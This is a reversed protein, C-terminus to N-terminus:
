GQNNKILSKKVHKWIELAISDIPNDGKVIIIRQPEGAAIQLYGDRVKRIFDHKEKEIRDFESGTKYKRKLALSPEIDIYFTLDPERGLSAFQNITRVISIDLDRGYGQYATTSDYFRDCIVTLGKELNPLITESVMQARAASFLFLESQHCMEKNNRDLVIQRIRESIRTTGPDRVLIHPIKERKLNDSLLKVQVSKGSSDIGEFTIFSGRM